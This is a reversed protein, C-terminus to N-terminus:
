KGAPGMENIIQKLDYRAYPRDAAAEHNGANAVHFVLDEPVFLVNHLNANKSAVGMAMLGIAAQTDIRGYDKEIRGALAEYRDGASMLVCDKIARPLQKHAEGMAIFEISEPVAKVGVAKRAKGDGIVYYYECTRPAARFIEQAQELTNAEELAKRVLHAMPMGDWKGEGRGGMEGISIGADNMGSVSGNFGAYSVNVFAQKGPRRTVNVVAYYQLGIETMYDLVRGHYLKGGVTAGGAVAFGSCHFLEPFINSLKVEECSIGSGDAMGELEAIYDRPVHPELRRWAARIEDPFWKGSEMTYGLGVAYLTSDIVKRMERGLLRGHAMGIDRAEGDLMLLRNGGRAVLRGHAVTTVGDSPKPFVVNEYAIEAMRALGRSVMRELINAEVPLNVYGTGTTEPLRIDQSDKRSKVIIRRNQEKGFVYEVSGGMRSIACLSPKGGRAAPIKIEWGGDTEECSIGANSPMLSNVLFALSQSTSGMAAAMLAQARADTGAAKLLAERPDFRNENEVGGTGSFVTQHNLSVLEVRDRDRTLRGNHGDFAFELSVRGPGLDTLKFHGKQNWGGGGGKVDYQASLEYSVTRNQLYDLPASIMSAIAGTATIPPKAFVVGWACFSVM